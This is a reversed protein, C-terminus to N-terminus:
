ATNSPRTLRWYGNTTTDWPERWTGTPHPLKRDCFIPFEAPYEFHIDSALRLAVLSTARWSLDLAVSFNLFKELIGLNERPRPHKLHPFIIKPGPNRHVSDPTSFVQPM